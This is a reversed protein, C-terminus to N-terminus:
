KNKFEVRSIMPDIKVFYTSCLYQQEASVIRESIELNIISSRRSGSNTTKKPHGAAFKVGASVCLFNATLL